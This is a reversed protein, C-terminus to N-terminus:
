GGWCPRTVKESLVVLSSGNLATALLVAVLAAPLRSRLTSRRVESCAYM